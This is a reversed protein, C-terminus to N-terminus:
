SQSEPDQPRPLPPARRILDRGPYNRRCYAVIEAVFQEAYPAQFRQPDWRYAGMQGGVRRPAGAAGCSCGREAGARQVSSDRHLAASELMVHSRVHAVQCAMDFWERSGFDRRLLLLPEDALEAIELVVSRRFRHTPSLVALLHM